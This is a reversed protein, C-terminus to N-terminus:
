NVCYKLLWAYQVSKVHCRERDNPMHGIYADAFINVQNHKPSSMRVRAAYKLAGTFPVRSDQANCTILMPPYKQSSRINSYPCVSMIQEFDTPNAPDGWEDYEHITLPLEPRTLTGVMDLFPSELLAAGFVDPHANIAGCAAIAGASSSEIAIKGPNAYGKSVLYEIATIVDKASNSKYKGRGQAHWQRGLEGGGRAHVFCLVWGQYLLPLREPCFNVPLNHGYAGYVMILCPPAHHNNHINPGHCITLPIKLTKDEKDIIHERICILREKFSINSNNEHKEKENLKMEKMTDSSKNFEVDSSQLDPLRFPERLQQQALDWDMSVDMCIPSSLDLRISKSNFDANAGPEVCYAWDPLSIFYSKEMHIESEKWAKPVDSGQHREDNCGEGLSMPIIRQRPLGQHREYVVLANRFVDLDDRCIKLEPKLVTEWKDLGFETNRISVKYLGYEGASGRSGSIDAPKSVDSWGLVNEDDGIAHHNSLIFFNGFHHEIVYELGNKRRQVCVMEGFPDKAPVVHVESSRKSNCNIILYKWDKTRQLEVFYRPDSEEFITEVTLHIDNNVDVNTKGQLHPQAAVVRYPRGLEDPFTALLTPLVRSLAEHNTPENESLNPADAAWEVSVIGSLANQQVTIGSVVHKVFCSFVDESEGPVTATFALYNGCFSLKMQGIELDQVGLQKSLENVDLLPIAREDNVRISSQRQLNKEPKYRLYCPLPRDCTQRVYYYHDGVKEPLTTVCKPLSSLVDDYLKKALKSCGSTKMWSTFQIGEEKLISIAAAHDREIWRYEDNWSKDGYFCIEPVSRLSNARSVNKQLWQTISGFSVGDLPKGNSEYISCRFLDVKQTNWFLVDARRLKRGCRRLSAIMMM